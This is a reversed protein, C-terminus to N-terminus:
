KNNDKAFILGLGSAIAAAAATWEAPSSVTTVITAIGTATTKWSRM